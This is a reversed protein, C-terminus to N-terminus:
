SLYIQLVECIGEMKTTYRRYQTYLYMQVFKRSEHIKTVNRELGDVGGGLLNPPM